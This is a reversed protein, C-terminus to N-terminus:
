VYFSAHFFLRHFLFAIVQEAVFCCIFPLCFPTLYFFIFDMKYISILHIVYESVWGKLVGAVVNPDRVKSLDPKKGAFGVNCYVRKFFILISIILVKILNSEYNRLKSYQEM